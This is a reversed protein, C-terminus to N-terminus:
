KKRKKKRYNRNTVTESIQLKERNLKKEKKKQSQKFCLKNRIKDDYGDVVHFGGFCLSIAFALAIILKFLSNRDRLIWHCRDPVLFHVVLIIRSWIRIRVPRSSALNRQM